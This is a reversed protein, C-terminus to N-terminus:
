GLYSTSDELYLRELDYGNKKLKYIDEEEIDFKKKLGSLLSEDIYEVDSESYTYENLGKLVEQIDFVEIREENITNSDTNGNNTVIYPEYSVTQIPEIM